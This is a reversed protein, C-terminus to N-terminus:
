RLKKGIRSPITAWTVAGSPNRFVKPTRLRRVATLEWAYVREVRCERKWDAFNAKLDAATMGMRRANM